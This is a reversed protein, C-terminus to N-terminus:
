ESVHSHRSMSGPFVSGSVSAAGLLWLTLVSIDWVGRIRALNLSHSLPHASIWNLDWESTEHTTILLDVKLVQSKKEVQTRELNVFAAQFTRPM